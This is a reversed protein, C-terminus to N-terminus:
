QMIRQGARGDSGRVECSDPNARGPREVPGGADNVLCGIQRTPLFDRQRRSDAIGNAKRREELVVSVGGRQGFPLVANALAGHVHKVDRDARPDAAAQDQVPLEPVAGVAAGALESVHGDVKVTRETIAAIASAHFDNSRTGVIAAQTASRM